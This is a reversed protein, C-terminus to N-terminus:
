KEGQGLKNLIKLWGKQPIKSVLRQLFNPTSGKINFTWTMVTHNL